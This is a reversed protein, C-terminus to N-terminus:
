WYHYTWHSTRRPKRQGRDDERKTGSQSHQNKNDTKATNSKGNRTQPIEEVCKHPTLGTKNTQDPKGM